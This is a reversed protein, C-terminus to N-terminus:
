AAAYDNTAPEPVDNQQDPTSVALTVSRM